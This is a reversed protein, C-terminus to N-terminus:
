DKIYVKKMVIPSVPTNDANIAKSAISDFIATGDVVKAFGAYSGDLGLDDSLLIMFQATASNYEGPLYCFALTGRTLPLDNSYGNKAFEGTVTEKCEGNSLATLGSSVLSHGPNLTEFSSGNYYGSEVLKLFHAVTEPAQEPYTEVTFSGINEIDFGVKVHEVEADSSPAVNEVTYVETDEAVDEQSSCSTCFMLTTLLIAFLMYKLNKM